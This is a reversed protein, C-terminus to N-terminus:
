LWAGHEINRKIVVRVIGQTTATVSVRDLLYDPVRHREIVREASRAHGAAPFMEGAVGGCHDVGMVTQRFDIPGAFLQIAFFECGEASKGAAIRSCCLVM